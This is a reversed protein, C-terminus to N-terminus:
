AADKQPHALMEEYKKQMQEPMGSVEVKMHEKSGIKDYLVNKCDILRNIIQNRNNMFYADHWLRVTKGKNGILLNDKNGLTIEETEPYYIYTLIREIDLKLIKNTDNLYRTFGELLNTMEKVKSVEDLLIDKAILSTQRCIYNVIKKQPPYLGYRPQTHKTNVIKVLENIKYPTLM